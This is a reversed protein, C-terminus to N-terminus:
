KTPGRMGALRGAAGSPDEKAIEAYIKAAEAPQTPQYTNALELQAAAKPVSNAPKAILEKYLDVAQPLRNTSRYVSALAMKALASVDAPGADVAAKLDGEAATYDGLDAETAGAFYRALHGSDTHSYESAVKGFETHAARSRDAASAFTPGTGETPTGPPVIPAQYLRLAAGLADQAEANRHQTYAMGGAVAAIVVVLAVAAAILKDRHEIAWSYTEAYTEAVNEAFKDQKLRHRAEARV